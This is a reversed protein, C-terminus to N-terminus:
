FKSIPFKLDKSVGLPYITNNKLMQEKDEEAWARRAQVDSPVQNGCGDRGPLPYVSKVDQWSVDTLESDM